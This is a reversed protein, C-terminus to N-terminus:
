DQKTLKVSRFSQPYQESGHILQNISVNERSTIFKLWCIHKNTRKECSQRNKLAKKKEFTSYKKTINQM